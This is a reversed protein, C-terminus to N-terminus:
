VRRVETTGFKKVSEGAVINGFAAMKSASWEKTKIYHAAMGALFVDGAGVVDVVEEGGVLSPYENGSESDWYGHSGMTVVWGDIKTKESNVALDVYEPREEKDNHKWITNYFNYNRLDKSEVLIKTKSSPFTEFEGYLPEMTGKNYDSIVVFDWNDLNYSQYRSKYKKFNDVRLLQHGKSVYRTKTMIQDPKCYEIAIPTINRNDLNKLIWDDVMGAYWMECDPAMSRINSAVNLAGGLRFESRDKDFIPIPAEPSVRDVSGFVYEDKISDGIVLVKM